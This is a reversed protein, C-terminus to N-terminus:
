DPSFAGVIEAALVRAKELGGHKEFIWVQILLPETAMAIRWAAIRRPKLISSANLELQQVREAGLPGTQTTIPFRESEFSTWGPKLNGHLWNTTAADETETAFTELDAFRERRAINILGDCEVYGGLTHHLRRYLVISSQRFSRQPATAYHSPALISGGGSLPIRADAEAM